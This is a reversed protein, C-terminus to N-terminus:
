YVKKRSGAVLQMLGYTAVLSIAPVLPIRMRANSWFVSHVITFSLILLLLPLWNWQKNRLLFFLGTLLMIFVFLYHTKVAILLLFPVSAAANGQPQNNWFRLLRFWSARMFDTPNAKINAIARRTMWDGTAAESLPPHPDNQMAADVSKQWHSLQEHSWTTGWPKKVVDNWFHSNNGMLLTYGGHTTMLIPSRLVIANRIVWPSVVIVIGSIIWKPVQQRISLFSLRSAKWEIFQKSFWFLFILGGFAWITPRCLATLGFLVGIGFQIKSSPPTQQCCASTTAMFLLSVLTTFFTETMPMSAYRVLLPDVAVLLAAFLSWNKLGINEGIRCTAWVTVGGCIINLFAVGGSSIGVWMFFALVLPYLPPRFASPAGNPTSRFGKGAAITRAYTLYADRDETLEHSLKAIVGYRLCMSFLVLCGIAVNKWMRVSTEAPTTTEVADLM